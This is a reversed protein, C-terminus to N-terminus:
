AVEWSESPTLLDSKITIMAGNTWAIDWQDLSCWVLGLMYTARM